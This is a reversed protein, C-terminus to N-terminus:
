HVEASGFPMSSVDGMCRARREGEEAAAAAAAAAVPFQVARTPVAAAEQKRRSAEAPGHSGAAAGGAGGACRSRAQDTPPSSAHLSSAAAAAARTCQRTSSCLRRADPTPRTATPDTQGLHMRTHSPGGNAEDDVSIQRRRGCKWGTTRSRDMRAHTHTHANQVASGNIHDLALSGGHWAVLLHCTLALM